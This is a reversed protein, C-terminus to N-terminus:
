TLCRGRRLVNRWARGSKDARECVQSYFRRASQALESLLEVVSETCGQQLAPFLRHRIFNRRHTYDANTHDRRWTRNRQHLYEVVEDRTVCMMPRIFTVGGAFRRKPWIGGLGRFGTGRILRHLVTEANDNKHHATAILDSQNARAIDMLAKIRCQRAATEISLKNERAFRRVDVRKTTMPLKLGSTEAVVFGEDSDAAPGRLQHNIHACVFKVKFIGERELAQMAYLLATSDAGGSVALVVKTASGFLEHAGIFSALRTEFKLLMKDVYFFPGATWGPGFNWLHFVRSWFLPGDKNARDRTSGKCNM